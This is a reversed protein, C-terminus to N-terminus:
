AAIGFLTKFNRFNSVEVIDLVRIRASALWEPQAEGAYSCETDSLFEVYQVWFPLVLESVGEVGACGECKMLDALEQALLSMIPDQSAQAVDHVIADGFAVLLKAFAMTKEDYEGRRLHEIMQQADHSTLQEALLTM